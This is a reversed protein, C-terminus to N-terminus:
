CGSILEGVCCGGGVRGPPVSCSWFEEGAFTESSRGILVAEFPVVARAGDAEDGDMESLVAVGGDAKNDRGSSSRVCVRDKRGARSVARTQRM